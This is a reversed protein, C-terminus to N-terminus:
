NALAKKLHRQYHKYMTAYKDVSDPYWPKPTGCFHLFVTNELLGDLSWNKDRLQYTLDKRVDYNYKDDPMPKIRHGYLKNLVDQDPLLLQYKNQKIFTFIDERKVHKRMEVLNMLLVGSNFYNEVSTDLRVKNIVSTLNLVDAHMCAAYLHNKLETEYFSSVDNITLIDADLYLIKDLEEPLYDHALLRYYISQPYRQSVPADKFSEGDVIIEHYTMGLKTLARTVAEKEVLPKEQLVYVHYEHRENANMKLSYLTVLMQNTFKDDVAFLLNMKM